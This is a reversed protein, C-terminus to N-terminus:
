MSKASARAAEVSREDPIPHASRYVIAGPLGDPAPPGEPLVVLSRIEGPEAAGSRWGSTLNWGGILLVM